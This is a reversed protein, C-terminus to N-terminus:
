RATVLAVDRRGRAEWIGVGLYEEGMRTWRHEDTALKM